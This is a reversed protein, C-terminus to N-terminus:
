GWSPLPSDPVWPEAWPEVASAVRSRGSGPGISSSRGPGDLSACGPRPATSTATPRSAAIAATRIQDALGDRVQAQEGTACRRRGRWHSARRAACRGHFEKLVNRRVPRVEGDHDAAQQDLPDEGQPLPAAVHQEHHDTERSSAVNRITFSITRLSRGDTSFSPMTGVVEAERGPWRPWSRAAAGDDQQDRQVHSRPQGPHQGPDEHEEDRDGDAVGTGVPMCWTESTTVPAIMPMPARSMATM